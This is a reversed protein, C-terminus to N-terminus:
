AIRYIGVIDKIIEPFDIKLDILKGSHIDFVWGHITLGRERYARQVDPIKLVNICQEQVNLEVLRKYKQETNKISDLEKMHIRYVDRINRLWPDIIGMDDPRMAAKVGGCYYHGCVVIHKVKLHSAAYCIVSLASLDTNLVLNAINRHIFADGPRVGMFEEAPVRSDSCGIFLIGPRHEKSLNKFFTKDTQKKGAIWNKNNRFIQKIDM